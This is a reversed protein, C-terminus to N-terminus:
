NEIKNAPVTAYVAKLFTNNELNDKIADPTNCWVTAGTRNPGTWESVNYGKGAVKATKNGVEICKKQIEPEKLLEYLGKRNIEIEVNRRM